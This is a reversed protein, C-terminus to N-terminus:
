LQPVADAKKHHFLAGIKVRQYDFNSVEVFLQNDVTARNYPIMKVIPLKSATVAFINM